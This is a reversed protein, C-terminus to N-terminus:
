QNAMGSPFGFGMESAKSRTERTQIASDGEWYRDIRSRTYTDSSSNFLTQQCGGWSGTLVVTLLMITFKSKM